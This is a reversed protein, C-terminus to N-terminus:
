RSRVRAEIEDLLTQLMRHTLGWVIRGEVDFAPMQWREGEFDYPYTTSWEGRAMPTLPAWLTEHVEYNLALPVDRVLAFVFPAITLGVRKGRAMAPLLALRGILEGHENLDLGVEERTERIATHLLSPDGPDRRGGPFAMHGSWPDADHTARRILLVEAGQAGERLVAAVAALREDGGPDPPAEDDRSLASRILRLDINPSASSSM